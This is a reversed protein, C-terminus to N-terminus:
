PSRRGFGGEWRRPSSHRRVSALAALRTRPTSWPVEPRAQVLAAASPPALVEPEAAARVDGLLARLAPWWLPLTVLAFLAYALASPV